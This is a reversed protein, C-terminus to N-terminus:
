LIDNNAHLVNLCRELDVDHRESPRQNGRGVCLVWPCVARFSTLFSTRTFSRGPAAPKYLLMGTLRLASCIVSAASGM